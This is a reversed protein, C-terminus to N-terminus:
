MTVRYHRALGVVAVLLVVYLTCSMAFGYRECVCVDPGTPTQAGRSGVMKCVLGPAM